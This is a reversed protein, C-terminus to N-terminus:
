LSKRGTTACCAAELADLAPCEPADSTVARDCAKLHEGLVERFAQMQALRRDLDAVRAALVGRIRQCDRRSGDRVQVLVQIDRLTLGVAQAEKIFRVRELVDAGYRRAGGSSRLAAPLLGEREYYRLAEVTVSTATAVEGIRYSRDITM